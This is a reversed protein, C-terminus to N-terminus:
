IFGAQGADIIPAPRELQRGAIGLNNGAQGHGEDGRALNIGGNGAEFFDDPSRLGPGLALQHEGLQAPHFAFALAEGAAKVFGEGLKRLREVQPAFLDHRQDMGLLPVLRKPDDGFAPRRDAFLYNEGAILRHNVGFPAVGLQGFPQEFWEGIRGIRRELNAPHPMVKARAPRVFRRFDDLRPELGGVGQHEPGIGRDRPALEIRRPPLPKLAVVAEDANVVDGLAKRREVLQGLGQAVEVLQRALRELLRQAAPALGVAVQEHADVRHQDLQALRDPGRNGLMDGLKRRRIRGMGQEADPAVFFDAKGPRPRHAELRRAMM